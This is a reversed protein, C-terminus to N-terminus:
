FVSLDPINPEYLSKTYNWLQVVFKWCDSQDLSEKYTTIYVASPPKFLMKSTGEVLSAVKAMEALLCPPCNTFSNQINSLISFKWFSQKWGQVLFGKLLEHELSNLITFATTVCLNNGAPWISRGFDTKRRFSGTKLRHHCSHIFDVAIFCIYRIFKNKTTNQKNTWM